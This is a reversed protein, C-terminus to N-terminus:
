QLMTTSFPTEYLFSAYKGQKKGAKEGNFRTLSSISAKADQISFIKHILRDVPSSLTYGAAYM